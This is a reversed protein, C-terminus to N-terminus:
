RSRRRQTPHFTGMKARSDNEEALGVEVKRMADQFARSRRRSEADSQELEEKFKQLEKPDPSKLPLDPSVKQSNFNALRQALRNAKEEFDSNSM